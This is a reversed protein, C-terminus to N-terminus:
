GLSFTYNTWCGSLAINRLNNQPYYYDPDLSTNAEEDSTAAVGILNDLVTTPSFNSCPSIFLHAWEPQTDPPHDLYVLKRLASYTFHFTM